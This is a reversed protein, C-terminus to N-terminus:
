VNKSTIDLICKILWYDTFPDLIKTRDFIMAAYIDADFIAGAAIASKGNSAGPGYGRGCLCLFFNKVQTM